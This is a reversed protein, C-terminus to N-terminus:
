VRLPPLPFHGGGGDSIIFPLGRNALPLRGITNGWDDENLTRLARHVSFSSM